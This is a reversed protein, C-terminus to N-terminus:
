RARRPYGLTALVGGVKGQGTVEGGLEEVRTRDIGRPAAAEFVGCAARRAHWGSARTSGLARLAHQANGFM